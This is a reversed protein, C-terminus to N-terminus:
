SSGTLRCTQPTGKLSVNWHFRLGQRLFLCMGGREATTRGSFRRKSDRTSYCRRSRAWQPREGVGARPEEPCGLPQRGTLEQQRTCFRWTASQPGSNKPDGSCTHYSSHHSQLVRQSFELLLISEPFHIQGNRTSGTRQTLPVCRGVRSRGTGGERTRRGAPGGRDAGRGKWGAWRRM